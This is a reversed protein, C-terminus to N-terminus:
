FPLFVGTIIQRSSTNATEEVPLRIRAPRNHNKMIYVGAHTYSM